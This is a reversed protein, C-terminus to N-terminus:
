TLYKGKKLLEYTKRNHKHNDGIHIIIDYFYNPVKMGFKKRIFKKLLIATNSQYSTVDKKIRFTDDPFEMAIIRVTPSSNQMANIKLEIKWKQIDDMSYMKRIFDPLTKGLNITKEWKKTSHKSLEQSIEDFWPKAPPWLFIWSWSTSEHKGLKVNQYKRIQNKTIKVKKIPKKIKFDHIKSKPIIDRILNWNWQKSNLAFKELNKIDKFNKERGRFLMVLFLIEPKVIKFGNKLNYFRSNNVLSNDNIGITKAWENGVIEINKTVHFAKKKKSIKKKIKPLIVLDLDYNNRIKNLALVFSGVICVSKKDIQLLELQKKLEDLQKKNKKEILELVM